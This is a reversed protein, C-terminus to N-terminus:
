ERALKEKWRTIRSSIRNREVSSFIRNVRGKDSNDVLMLETQRRNVAIDFSVLGYSAQKINLSDNTDHGGDQFIQECFIARLQCKSWRRM